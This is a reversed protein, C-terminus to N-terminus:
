ARWWSRAALWALALTLGAILLVAALVILAIQTIVPAAQAAPAIEYIFARGVWIVLGGLLLMPVLCIPLYTFFILSALRGTQRAPTQQSRNTARSASSM